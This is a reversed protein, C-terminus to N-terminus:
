STAQHPCSSPVCFSGSTMDHEPPTVPHNVVRGTVLAEGIAHEEPAGNSATRARCFTCDETTSRLHCHGPATSGGLHGTPAWRKPMVQTEREQAYFLTPPHKPKTVSVANKHRLMKRRAHVPVSSPCHSAENPFGLFQHSAYVDAKAV